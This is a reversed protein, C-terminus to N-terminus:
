ARTAEEKARDQTRAESPCATTLERHKGKSARVYTLAYYPAHLETTSCLGSLVPTSPEIGEVRVITYICPLITRKTNLNWYVLCTRVM